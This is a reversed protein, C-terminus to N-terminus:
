CGWPGPMLPHRAFVLTTDTTDTVTLLWASGQSRYGGLTRTTRMTNTVLPKTTTTPCASVHGNRMNSVAIDKTKMRAGLVHFM